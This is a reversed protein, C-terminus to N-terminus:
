GKSPGFVGAFPDSPDFGASSKDVSQFDVEPLMTLIGRPHPIKPDHLLRPEVIVDGAKYSKLGM